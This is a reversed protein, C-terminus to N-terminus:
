KQRVMDSALRLTLLCALHKKGEGIVVVNSVIGTLAKKIRMEIPVPPINEGGATLLMEKLRGVISVFGSDDLSVLDGSRFGFNGVHNFFYQRDRIDSNSFCLM